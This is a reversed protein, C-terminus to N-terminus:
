VPRDNNPQYSEELGAFVRDPKLMGEVDPDQDMYDSLAEMLKGSEGVPLKALYQRMYGILEIRPDGEPFTLEQSVMDGFEKGTIKGTEIKYYIALASALLVIKVVAVLEDKRAEKMADSGPIKNIVMARLWRDLEQNGGMRIEVGDVVVKKGAVLDLVNDIYKKAFKLNRDGQTKNGGAINDLTTQNILQTMFLAAILSVDAQIAPNIAAAAQETMKEFSTADIATVRSFDAASFAEGIFTAGIVISAAMFPLREIADSNGSNVRNVYNEAASAL